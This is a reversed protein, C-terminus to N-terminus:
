HEKGMGCNKDAAATKDHNAHDAQGAGDQAKSQKKHKDMMGMCASDDKRQGIFMANVSRAATMQHPTSGHLEFMFLQFKM